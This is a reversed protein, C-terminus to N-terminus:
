FNLMRLYYLLAIFLGLNGFHYITRIRLGNGLPTELDKKFYRWVMGGASYLLFIWTSEFNYKTIISIMVFITGAFFFLLYPPKETELLRELSEIFSKLM